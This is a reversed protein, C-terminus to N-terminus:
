NADGPFSVVHAFIRNELAIPHLAGCNQSCRRKRQHKGRRSLGRRQSLDLACGLARCLIHHLHRELATVTGVDLTADREELFANETIVDVRRSGKVLVRHRGIRAVGSMDLRLRIRVLISVAM